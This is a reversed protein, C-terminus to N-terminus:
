FKLPINKDTKLYKDKGYGKGFGVHWGYRIFEPFMLNEYRAQFFYLDGDIIFETKFEDKNEVVIDIDIDSTFLEYTKLNKM